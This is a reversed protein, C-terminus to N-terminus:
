PCDVDQGHQYYFSLYIRLNKTQCEIHDSLFKMSFLTYCDLNNYGDFHFIMKLQLCHIKGENKGYWLM